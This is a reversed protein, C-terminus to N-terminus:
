NVAAAAKQKWEEQTFIGRPSPPEYPRFPVPGRTWVPGKCRDRIDLRSLENMLPSFDEGRVEGLLRLFTRAPTRFQPPLKALSEVDLTEFGAARLAGLARAGAITDCPSIRAGVVSRVELVNAPLTIIATVATEERYLEASRNKPADSWLGLDGNLSTLSWGNHSLWRCVPQV